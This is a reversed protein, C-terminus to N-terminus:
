PWLGMGSLIEAIVLVAGAAFAGQLLRELLSVRRPHSRSM